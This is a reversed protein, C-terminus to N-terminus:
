AVAWFSWSFLLCSASKTLSIKFMETNSSGEEFAESVRIIADRFVPSGAGQASQSGVEEHDFLAIMSIGLDEALASSHSVLAETATFCHM